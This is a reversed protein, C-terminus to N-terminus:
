VYILKELNEPTAHGLFGLSVLIVLLLEEWSSLLNELTVLLWPLLAVLILIQEIPDLLSQCSYISTDPPVLHM